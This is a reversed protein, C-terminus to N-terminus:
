IPVGPYCYTLRGPPRSVRSSRHNPEHEATVIPWDIEQCDTELVVRPRDPESIIEPVKEVTTEPSNEENKTNTVCEEVRHRLQDTHRKWLRDHEVTVQYSVPGTKKIIIGPIWKKEGSYTQVWVKEQEKFEKERSGKDFQVKQAEQRKVVKTQLNPTM